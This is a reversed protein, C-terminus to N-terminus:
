YNISYIIFNNYIKYSEKEYLGIGKVFLLIDSVYM